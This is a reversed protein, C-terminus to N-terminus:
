HRFDSVAFEPVLTGLQPLGKVQGAVVSNSETALAILRNVVALRWQLKVGCDNGILADGNLNL